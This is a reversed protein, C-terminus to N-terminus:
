ESLILANLTSFHPTNRKTLHKRPVKEDYHEGIHVKHHGDTLPNNLPMIAAPVVHYNPTETTGVQIEQKYLLAMVEAPILEDPQM